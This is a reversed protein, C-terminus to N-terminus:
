LRQKWSRAAGVALQQHTGGSAMCVNRAEVCTCMLTSVVRMGQPCDSKRHHQNTNGCGM